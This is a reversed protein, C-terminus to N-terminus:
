VNCIFLANCEAYSVRCCHVGVNLGCHVIVLMLPNEKRLVKNKKQGLHSYQQLVLIFHTCLIWCSYQFHPWDELQEKMRGKMMLCVCPKFIVPLLHLNRWKGLTEKPNKTLINTKCKKNVHFLLCGKEAQIYLILGFVSHVFLFHVVFGNIVHKAYNYFNFVFIM